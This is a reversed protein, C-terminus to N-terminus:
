CIQLLIPSIVTIVILSVVKPAQWNPCTSGKYHIRNCLIAFGKQSTQVKRQEVEVSIQDIIKEQAYMSM